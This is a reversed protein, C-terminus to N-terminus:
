MKYYSTPFLIFVVPVSLAHQELLSFVDRYDQSSEAKMDIAMPIGAANVIDLIDSITPVPEM